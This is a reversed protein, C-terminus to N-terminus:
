EPRILDALATELEKVATRLREVLKDWEVPTGPGDGSPGVRSTVFETIERLRSTAEEKKSTNGTAAIQGRYRLELAEAGDALSVAEDANAHSPDDPGLRSAWESVLAAVHRLELNQPPPPPPPRPPPPPISAPRTSIVFVVVAILPGVATLGPWPGLLAVVVGGLGFLLAEGFAIPDRFREPVGM